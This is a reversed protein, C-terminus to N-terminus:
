PPSEWIEPLLALNAGYQKMFTEDSFADKVSAKPVLAQLVTLWLNPFPRLNNRFDLYQGHKFGLAKGGLVMAALPSPGHELNAVETVYTTITHDLLKGGFIDDEAKMAAVAEATRQHYWTKVNDQFIAWAETTRNTPKTLLSQGNIKHSVPHHRYIGDLDDPNMGEFAVADVSTSWQFTAVRTIDCKFAARIVELHLKGLLAIGDQEPAPAAPNDFYFKSGVKAELAPDPETPVRCASQPNELQDSLQQEVKRIAEAHAEIKPRESSPALTNLRKLEGLSYDLVSKRLQLAKSVGQTPDPGPVFQGFLQAFLKAPSIQPMVPVHEVITAGAPNAAEISRTDYGYSLCQTSTELSEIRADCTANVPGVGRDMGPVRKLVIQDISPAGAVADDAEGGNKRTGPIDASTMRFVQGGEHGGGGNRKAIDKLGYLVSLDDRLGAAIFPVISTPPEYGAGVSTPAFLYPVVGNPWFMVLLRAPPGAGEAAAELKTLLSSFGM